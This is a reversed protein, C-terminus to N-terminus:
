SSGFSMFGSLAISIALLATRPWPPERLASSSWPHCTNVRIFPRECGWGDTDDQWGHNRKASHPRRARNGANYLTLQSV